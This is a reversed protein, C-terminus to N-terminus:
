EPTQADYVLPLEYTDIPPMGSANEETFVVKFKTGDTINIVTKTVPNVFSGDFSVTFRTTTTAWDEVTIPVSIGLPLWQPQTKTDAKNEVYFLQATGGQGEFMQWACGRVQADTNDITGQITLPFGVAAQASHSMVSFGCVGDAVAVDNKHPALAKQHGVYFAIGILMLILAGSLLAIRAFGKQTNKM